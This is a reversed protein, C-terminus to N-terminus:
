SKKVIDKSTIILNEVIYKKFELKFKEIAEPTDLVIKMHWKDLYPHLYAIKRVIADKVNEEMWNFVPNPDEVLLDIRTNM